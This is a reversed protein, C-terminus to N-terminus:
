NKNVYNKVWTVHRVAEYIRPRGHFCVVSTQEPLKDLVRQSWGAEKDKVQRGNIPKFNSIKNPVINQWRVDPDTIVSQIFAQDGGKHNKQIAENPNQIWKNWIKSVKDSKVPFWMMGSLLYMNIQNTNDNFGGLTIFKDEYGIPPMIGKLDGVVATDLDMFLFPRYQDMDPSFLNMKTWWKSWAKNFTPILKVNILDFSYNIKDWLCIVQLRGEGHWHKHLHFSILEVDRFSFPGGSRLALIVNHVKDSM